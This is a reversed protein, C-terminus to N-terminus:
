DGSEGVGALEDRGRGFLQLSQVFADEFPAASDEAECGCEWGSDESARMHDVYGHGAVCDVCGLEAAKPAALDSAGLEAAEPAALDAAGALGVGGVPEQM